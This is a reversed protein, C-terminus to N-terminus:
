IKLSPLDSTRLSSQPSLGVPSRVLNMQLFTVHGSRSATRWFWRTNWNWAMVRDSLPLQVDACAKVPLSGPLLQPPESLSVGCKSLVVYWWRERVSRFSRGSTCSLYRASNETVLQILFHLFCLWIYCCSTTRNANDNDLPEWGGVTINLERAKLDSWTFILM